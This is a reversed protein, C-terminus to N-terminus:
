RWRISRTARMSRRPRCLPSSARAATPSSSAGTPSCSRRARSRADARGSCTAARGLGRTLRWDASTSPARRRRERLCQPARARRLDAGPRQLRLGRRYGMRRALKPSSGGTPGRRAPRRCSPASGRSAGSPTRSRATRRAGPRARAAARAGPPPTPTPSATPSVVLECRRLAERVRDADPLSVVPNTAMIWVAKIQGRHMAEFLDVAKLGPRQAIAPSQWFRQVRQAIRRMTWTWTRPSCTRWAASKAAVWRMPSAPSRSRAWARSASAARDASPLQHPQQGQRHRRRVPERGALLRDRMRPTAAFWEYFQQLAAPECDVSARWRSSTAPPTPPWWCRAACAAPTSRARVGRSACRAPWGTCCGTSCGCTRAPACRCTCTPSTAPPPAARISSSSACSRGASSRAGRHAPVAGSPVLRHQIRGARGPRRTGPGRLQGAGPGRRFRAQARGGGIVHVAALQYRHQRTGIFGKMLKNAVYYDETLLQGSVYFAVSEPGHEAILRTFAGAVHSLAREWHSRSAASGRSCCGDVSPGANRRAGLGQFVPAAIPRIRRM